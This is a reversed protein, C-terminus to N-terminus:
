YVANVEQRWESCLTIKLPRIEVPFKQPLLHEAGGRVDDLIAPAVSPGGMLIGDPGQQGGSSCM